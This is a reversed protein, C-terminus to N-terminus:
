CVDGNCRFSVMEVGYEKLASTMQRVIVERVAVEEEPTLVRAVTLSAMIPADLSLREALGFEAMCANIAKLSPLVGALNLRFEILYEIRNM